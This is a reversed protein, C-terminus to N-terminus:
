KQQLFVALSLPKKIDIGFSSNESVNPCAPYFWHISVGDFARKKVIELTKRVYSVRSGNNAALESFKSPQTSKSTYRYAGVQMLIKLGAAKFIAVAELLHASDPREVPGRVSHHTFDDLVVHTCFNAEVLTTAMVSETM